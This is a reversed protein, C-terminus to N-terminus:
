GDRVVSKHGVGLNNLALQGHGINTNQNTPINLNLFTMLGSHQNNLTAAVQAQIKSCIFDYWVYQSLNFHKFQVLSKLKGRSHITQCKM